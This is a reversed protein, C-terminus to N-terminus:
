KGIMNLEMNVSNLNSKVRNISESSPYKEIL